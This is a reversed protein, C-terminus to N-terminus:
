KAHVWTRLYVLPNVDTILTGDQMIYLVVPLQGDVGRPKILLVRVDGVEAPVTVWAEEVGPMPVGAQAGDVAKRVEGLPLEYLAPGGQSPYAVVEAVGKGLNYRKADSV